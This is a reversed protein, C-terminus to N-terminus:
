RNFKPAKIKTKTQTKKIRKKKEFSFNTRISGDPKKSLTVQATFPKNTRPSILDTIPATKRGNLMDDLFPLLEQKSKGYFPFEIENLSILQEVVIHQKMDINAKECAYALIREAFSSARVIFKPDSELAAAWGKIYTQSNEFFPAVNFYPSSFLSFMEAVLEEAAYAQKGELDPFSRDLVEKSGTWHGIEHLLVRYYKHPNEFSSQEPMKIAHERPSYYAKNGGTSIKIEANEILAKIEKFDESVKLPEPKEWKELGEIQSAHFVRYTKEMFFDETTALAVDKGAPTTITAEVERQGKAYYCILASKSGKKVTYGRQTAQKFTMFRPDKQIDFGALILSVYNMGSYLTGTTPNFPREISRLVQDPKTADWGKRWPLNQSDDSLAKILKETIEEIFKQGTM